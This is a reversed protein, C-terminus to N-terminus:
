LSVAQSASGKICVDIDMTWSGAPIEGHFALDIKISDQKLYDIANHAQGATLELIKGDPACDGDCDYMTLPPLTAGPDGSSVVVNASQIFSLNDLGSTVRVEARVFELSADQKVLDHVKALDDFVFSQTVSSQAPTDVQLNPYTLCVEPVDAEVDVLPCGPLMALGTILAASRLLNTMTNTM